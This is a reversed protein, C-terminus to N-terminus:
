HCKIYRFYAMRVSDATNSGGITMAVKVWSYCNVCRLTIIMRMLSDDISYIYDQIRLTEIEVRKKLDSLQQELKLRKDVDKEFKAGAPPPCSPAKSLTPTIHTAKTQLEELREDILKIEKKLYYIQSLEEHTM